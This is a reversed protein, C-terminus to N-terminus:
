AHRGLWPRCQGRRRPRSVASPPATRASDGTAGSRIRRVGIDRFVIQGSRLLLNRANQTPACEKEVPVAHDIDVMAPDARAIAELPCRARALRDAGRVFGSPVDEHDGVLGANGASVEVFRSHHRQMHPHDVLAGGAARDIIYAVTRKMRIRDDGGITAWHSACAQAQCAARGSARM